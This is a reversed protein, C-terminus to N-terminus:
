DPWSPPWPGADHLLLNLPVHASSCASSIWRKLVCLDMASEGRSPRSKEKYQPSDNKKSYILFLRQNRGAAQVSEGLVELAVWTPNLVRLVWKRWLEKVTGQCQATRTTRTCWHYRCVSVPGTRARAVKRPFVWDVVSRVPRSITPVRIRLGARMVNSVQCSIGGFLALSLIAVQGM